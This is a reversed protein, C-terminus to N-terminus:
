VFYTDSFRSVKRWEPSDVTGCDRCVFEGEEAKPKKKKREAAMGDGKVGNASIGIGLAGYTNSTSPILTQTSVLGTAPDIISTTGLDEQEVRYIGPAFPATTLRM